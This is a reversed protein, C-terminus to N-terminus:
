STEEDDRIIIHDAIHDAIHDVGNKNKKGTTSSVRGRRTVTLEWTPPGPPIRLMIRDTDCSRNVGVRGEATFQFDVWGPLSIVCNKWLYGPGRVVSIHLYDEQGPPRLPLTVSGEHSILHSSHSGHHFVNLDREGEMLKNDITIGAPESSM